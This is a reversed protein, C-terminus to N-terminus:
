DYWLNREYYFLFPASYLTPGPESLLGAYQTIMSELLVVFILDALPREFVIM